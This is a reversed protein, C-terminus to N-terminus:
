KKQNKVVSSILVLYRIKWKGHDKFNVSELAHVAKVKLTGHSVLDGLGTLNRVTDCSLGFTSFPYVFASSHGVTNHQATTFEEKSRRAQETCAHNNSALLSHYV